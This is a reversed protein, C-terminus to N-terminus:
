STTGTNVQDSCVVPDDDTSEIEVDHQINKSDVHVVNNNQRRLRLLPIHAVMGNFGTDTASTYIHIM